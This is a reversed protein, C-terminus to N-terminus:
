FVYKASVFVSTLEKYKGYEGDSDVGPLFVFAGCSFAIYDSLSYKIEPYIVSDFDNFNLVASLSVELTEQLFTKSISLTAGHTFNETRELDSIDGFVYDCFYQATIVWDQPMWDLGALASIQHHQSSSAVETNTYKEEIIKESSRQFYRFPFVASELRLVTPGLPISMDFGCMSLRKYEGSVTIGNPLAVYYHEEPQGYCVTYDLIPVDEWGYFGYFSVDLSSFYFALKAAYEGNQVSLSPKTFPSLSIPLTLTTNLAEIPYDVSTPVIFKRLSSNEDLPLKTPTFFPIWYLDASFFDASFSLRAADVAMKEDDSTIASFSSMDSPCIINVIDVGDSAGWVIKQKGVRIGWFSSSYDAWLESINYGLSNEVADYFVSGQFFASSEGWYADVKGTFSTNGITFDGVTESDKWSVDEAWPTEVAWLTEITGSFDIGGSSSSFDSQSVLPLTFLFFLLLALLFIKKNM